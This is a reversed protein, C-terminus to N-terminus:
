CHACFRFSETIKMFFILFLGMHKKACSVGQHLWVFQDSRARRESAECRPAKWDWVMANGLGASCM